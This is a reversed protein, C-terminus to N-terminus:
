DCPGLRVAIGFHDHTRVLRLLTLVLAPLALFIFVLVEKVLLIPFTVLPGLIFVECELLEELLKPV